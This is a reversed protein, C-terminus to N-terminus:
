GITIIIKGPASLLLKVGHGANKVRKKKIANIDHLFNVAETVSKRTFGTDKTLEEMTVGETRKRIAKFITIRNANFLKKLSTVDVFRLDENIKSGVTVSEERM